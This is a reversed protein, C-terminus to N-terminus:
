KERNNEDNKLDALKIVADDEATTIDEAKAQASKLIEITDTVVNFLSLYGSKYDMNRVGKYKM